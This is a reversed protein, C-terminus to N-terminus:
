SAGGTWAIWVAVISGIAFCAAIILAADAVEGASRGQGGKVLPTDNAVRSRPRSAKIAERSFTVTDPHTSQTNM